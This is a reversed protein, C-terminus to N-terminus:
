GWEVKIGILDTAQSAVHMLSRPPRIRPSKSLTPHSPAAHKWFSQRLHWRIKISAQFYANPGDYRTWSAESIYRAFFPYSSTCRWKLLSGKTLPWMVINRMETTINNVWPTFNLSVETCCCRPLSRSVMLKHLCSKTTSYNLREATVILPRGRGPFICIQFM